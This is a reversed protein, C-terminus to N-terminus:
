AEKEDVPLGVVRCALADAPNMHWSISPGDDWCSLLPKGCLRCTHGLDTGNACMATVREQMGAASSRSRTPSHRQSILWTPTATHRALENIRRFVRQREATMAERCEDPSECVRVHLGGSLFCLAGVERLDPGYADCDWSSSVADGEAGTAREVAM